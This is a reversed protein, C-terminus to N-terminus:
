TPAPVTSNRSSSSPEKKKMSIFVTELDFMRHGFVDGALIQHFPLKADGGASRQWEILVLKRDVPVGDLHPEVRLVRLFTEQGLGASQLM